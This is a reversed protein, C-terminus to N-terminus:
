STFSDTKLDGVGDFSHFIKLSGRNNWNEFRIHWDVRWFRWFLKWTDRGKLFPNAYSSYKRYAQSLVKYSLSVKPESKTLGTNSSVKFIDKNNRGGGVGCGLDLGEITKFIQFSFVLPEIVIYHKICENLAAGFGIVLVKRVTITVYLIWLLTCGLWTARGPPAQGLKWPMLRSPTDSSGGPHTAPGDWPPYIM